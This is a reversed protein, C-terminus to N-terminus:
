EVQQAAQLAGNIAIQANSFEEGTEEVYKTNIINNSSKFKGWNALAFDIADKLTAQNEAYYKEVNSNLSYLYIYWQKKSSLSVALVYHESLKFTYGDSSNENYSKKLYNGIANIIELQPDEDKLFVAETIMHRRLKRIISLYLADFKNM